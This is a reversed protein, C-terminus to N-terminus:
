SIAILSMFFVGLLLSAMSIALVMASSARESEFKLEGEGSDGFASRIWNFYYYISAVSGLILVAMLWYLGAAFALFLVFLKAFFGATPPIGALSALGVSLSAASLPRRKWLGAYDSIKVREDAAESHFNQVFMIGYVALLYAILYLKVSVDVFAANANEGLLVIASVILVMLYGAHSVGSFGIVRKAVKESLAGFNGVIIGAAAVVSLTLVIKEFGAVRNQGEYALSALMFLCVLVAAAKSAVALFASAPTPAGQYVDPSWFHFPFASLKFFVAALCMAFGAVFLPLGVGKAFSEYYLMDVGSQLSAGYVFAIGLLFFAGSVGSLILYRMGSELSAADRRNWSVLAYFCVASAELSIFTFMLHESRTFLSLAAVAAFLIGYFEGANFTEKKSFYRCAMISSLLGCLCFFWTFNPLSLMGSFAREACEGFRFFWLSFGTLLAFLFVSVSAALGRAKPLVAGLIMMLVASLTLALEPLVAYWDSSTPMLNKFTELEM